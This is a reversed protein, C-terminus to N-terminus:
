PLWPTSKRRRGSIRRQTSRCCSPMRQGAPMGASVRAAAAAAAAPADAATDPEVAAAGAPGPPIRIAESSLAPSSLTEVVHAFGCRTADFESCQEVAARPLRERAAAADGRRPVSSTVEGDRAYVQEHTWLCELVCAFSWVDVKEDYHENRLLEPAMFLPTGVAEMTKELDAERSVGFDAIKAVFRGDILVNEPKLDRHLVPPRQSHLYAMGRAIGLAMDLKHKAWSLTSLTPEKMLIDQLTGNACLELVVCVNVDKLTWSGGLIQVFNTHRLSLQLEFEARFARLNAEDLKNRHLKKVAVPTGNLKALWVEGFAGAGLRRDLEIDENKILCRKMADPIKEESLVAKMAVVEQATAKERERIEELQRELEAARRENAEMAERQKRKEEAAIAAAASVEVVVMVGGLVLAGLTSGILLAANTEPDIAFNNALQGSLSDEVAETLTQVKLILSFFFFMVLAFGAALAIM